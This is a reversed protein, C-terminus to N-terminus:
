QNNITQSNNLLGWTCTTIDRMDGITNEPETNLSITAGSPVLQLDSKNSTCTWLPGDYWYNYEAPIMGTMPDPTNVVTGRFIYGCEPLQPGPIDRGGVGPNNVLNSDREPNKQYKDPIFLMTETPYCCDSYINGLYWEPAPTNIDLNTLSLQAGLRNGIMGSQNMIFDTNEIYSGTVAGYICNIFYTCQMRIDASNNSIGTNLKAFHCSTLDLREVTQLDLGYGGNSYISSWTPKDSYFESNTVNVNKINQIIFGSNPTASNFVKCDSVVVQYGTYSSGLGNIYASKSVDNYDCNTASFVGNLNRAISIPSGYQFVVNSFTVNGAGKEFTFGDNSTLVSQIKGQSIAVNVVEFLCSANQALRIIEQERDIGSLTLDGNVLWRGDEKIFFFGNMNHINLQHTSLEGEVIIKSSATFHIIPNDEIILHGGKEVIIQASDMNLLTGSRIILRGGNLITIKSEPRVDLTGSVDLTTNYGINLLGKNAIIEDGVQFKSTNDVTVTIAGDECGGALINVIFESNQLNNPLNAGPSLGLQGGMNVGIMSNNKVLISQSINGYM